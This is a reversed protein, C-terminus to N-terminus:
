AKLTAIYAQMKDASARRMEDTVHGYIDLTFAVTAHGLNASVTKVDIGARLAAVAYSHRLDHFRM